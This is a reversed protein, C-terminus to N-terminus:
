KKVVKEGAWVAAVKKSGFMRTHIYLATIVMPLGCLAIFFLLLSLAMIPPLTNECLEEHAGYYIDAVFSCNGLTDLTDVQDIIHQTLSHVSNMNADFTAVGTQFATVQTDIDAVRSALDAIAATIVTKADVLRVAADRLADLSAPDEGTLDADPACAAAATANNCDAEVYAAGTYGFGAAYSNLASLGSDVDVQTLGFDAIDLADVDTKLADLQAFNLADAAPASADLSDFISAFDFRGTMNFSALLPKAPIEFCGQLIAQVDVGMEELGGNLVDLEDEPMLPDLYHTFNSPITEMVVCADSFVISIPLFLGSLLFLLIMFVYSCVFSLSLSWRSIKKDCRMPSFFSFLVFLGALFALLVTSFFGYSVTTSLGIYRDVEVKVDGVFNAIDTRYELMGEVGAQAEEVTSGLEARAGVIKATVDGRTATLATVVPDSQAQLQAVAADIQAASGNVFASSFGAPLSQSLAATASSLASMSTVIGALASDIDETGAVMVEVDDIIGETTNSLRDVPALVEKFFTDLHEGLRDFECLTGVSGEVMSGINSISVFSLAVAVTCFTVYVLIPVLKAIFSYESPAKRKRCCFRNTCFLCFPFTLLTLVCLVIGPAAMPVLSKGYEEAFEPGFPDEATELEKLLLNEGRYNQLMSIVKDAQENAFNVGEGLTAVGDQVVMAESLSALMGINDKAEHDDCFTDADGKTASLSSALVVAVVGAGWHSKM